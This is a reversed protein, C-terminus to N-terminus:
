FGFSEMQHKGFILCLHSIFSALFVLCLSFWNEGRSTAHLLMVAHCITVGRIVVVILDSSLIILLFSNCLLLFTKGSTLVVDLLMQPLWFIKREM